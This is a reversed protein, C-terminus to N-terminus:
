IGPRGPGAGDGAPYGARPEAPIYSQAANPLETGAPRDPRGVRRAAAAGSLRRRSKGISGPRGACGARMGHPDTRKGCLLRRHGRRDGRVAAASERFLARRRWHRQDGHAPRGPWRRRRCGVQWRAAFAVICRSKALLGPYERPHRGRRHHRGAPRRGAGPHTLSGEDSKLMSGMMSCAALTRGLAATALPLTGHIQRAREVMGTCEVACVQVFGDVTIGRILRDAM